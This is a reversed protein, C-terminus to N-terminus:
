RMLVEFVELLECCLGSLEMVMYNKVVVAATSAVSRELVTARGALLCTATLKREM